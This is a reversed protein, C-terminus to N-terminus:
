NLAKDRDNCALMTYWTMEHDWERILKFHHNELRFRIDAAQSRMLGSLILWFKDKFPGSEFLDVLVKHHINAVVLDAPENIFDEARGQAVDVIDDLGNLNVNHKATKVCLPNLDIALVHKAGMNAVALALIGTGTGLDLVQDIRENKMAYVIAKLCDRTTPHLGNGFVVGPDLLIQIVGNQQAQTIWPPTVLFPDVKLTNFGGGQWEDYSFRYQDELTLDSRIQLLNTIEDGAPKSFFLFSYDDEVWNGIFALGLVVEDDETVVGQVLYIYLNEYPRTIESKHDNMM